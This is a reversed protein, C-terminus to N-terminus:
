VGMVGHKVFPRSYGTILRAAKHAQERQWQVLSDLETPAAPESKRQMAVPLGPTLLALMCWRCARTFSALEATTLLNAVPDRATLWSRVEAAALTLTEVIEAESVQESLHAQSIAEAVELLPWGAGPDVQANSAAPQNIKVEV